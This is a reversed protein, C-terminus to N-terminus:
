CYGEEVINSESNSSFNSNNYDLYNINCRNNKESSSIKDLYFNNNSIIKTINGNETEIGERKYKDDLM